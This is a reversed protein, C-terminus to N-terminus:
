SAGGPIRVMFRSGQAGDPRPGAEITGALEHV